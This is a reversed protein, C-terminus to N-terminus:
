ARILVRARGESVHIMQFLDQRYRDRGVDLQADDDIAEIVQRSIAEAVGEGAFRLLRAKALSKRTDESTLGDEIGKEIASEVIPPVVFNIFIFIAVTAAIVAAGGAIGVIPAAAAAIALGLAAVLAILATAAAAAALGVLLTIVSAAVAQPLMSVKVDVSEKETGDDRFPRTTMGSALRAESGFRLGDVSSKAGTVPDRSRTDNMLLGPTFSRGYFFSAKISEIKLLQSLLGRLRIDSSEFYIRLRYGILGQETGNEKFRWQADTKDKTEIFIFHTALEEPGVFFRLDYQLLRFMASGIRVSGLSNLPPDLERNAIESHVTATKRFLSEEVEVTTEFVRVTGDDLTITARITWDGSLPLSVVISNGNRNMPPVQVVVTVPTFRWAVGAVNENEVGAEWTTDADAVVTAPLMSIFARPTTEDGSFRIEPEAGVSAFDNIINQISNVQDDSWGNGEMPPLNAQTFGATLLSEIQAHVASTVTALPELLSEMSIAPVGADQWDATPLEIWREDSSGPGPVREPELTKPKEIPPPADPPGLDVDYIVRLGGDGLDVYSFFQYPVGDRDSVLSGGITNDPFYSPTVLINGSQQSLREFPAFQANEGTANPRLDEPPGFQGHNIDYVVSQLDSATLVGELFNADLRVRSELLAFLPAKQLFDFYLGKRDRDLKLPEIPFRSKTSAAGLAALTIETLDQANIWPASTRPFTPRDGERFSMLVGRAVRDEDDFLFALKDVGSLIWDIRAEGRGEVRVIRFRIRLQPRDVVVFLPDVNQIRPHEGGPLEFTTSSLTELDLVMVCLPSYFQDSTEQADLEFRPLGSFAPDIGGLPMPISLAQPTKRYALILRDGANRVDLGYGGADLRKSTWASEDDLQDLDGILLTLDAKDGKETAHEGLTQTVILLKRRKLDVGTWLEFGPKEAVTQIRPPTTTITVVYTPMPVQIHLERQPYGDARLTYTDLMLLPPKPTEEAPVPEARKYVVAITEDFTALGVRRSWNWMNTISPVDRPAEIPVHNIDNSLWKGAGDGWVFLTIKESESTAVVPIPNEKTVLRAISIDFIEQARTHAHTAHKAPRM